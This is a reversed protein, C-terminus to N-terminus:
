DHNPLQRRARCDAGHGHCDSNRDASPRQDARACRDPGPGDDACRSAGTRRRLWM